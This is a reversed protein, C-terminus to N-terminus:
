EENPDLAEKLARLEPLVLQDKPRNSAQKSDILADLGLAKVQYGYIEFIVSRAAVHVFDGIGKVEGLLDIDGISTAFTFSTGNMLTSEDFVFPLKEPFNRPRPDFAELSWYLRSINEKARSYCF